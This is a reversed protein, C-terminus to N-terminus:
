SWRDSEQSPEERVPPCTTHVAHLPPVFPQRVVWTPPLPALIEDAICFPMGNLLELNSIEPIKCKINKSWPQACSISPEPTFCVAPCSLRRGRPAPNASLRGPPPIWPAPAPPGGRPEAPWAPWSREQRSLLLRQKNLCAVLNM